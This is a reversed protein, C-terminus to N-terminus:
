IGRMMLVKGGITLLCLKVEKVEVWVNLRSTLM